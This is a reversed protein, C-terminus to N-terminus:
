AARGVTTSSGGHYLAQYITEPCLHWSPQEPYAHHLHASIQEPSWEQELLSQAVRRLEEDQSLRNRRPRRARQRAGAHALDGDYRGGDHSLLNRRLGRSVTSL